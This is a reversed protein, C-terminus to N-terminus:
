GGSFFGHGTGHGGGKAAAVYFALTLLFMLVAMADFRKKM